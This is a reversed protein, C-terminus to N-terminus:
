FDTLSVSRRQERMQRQMIDAYSGPPAAVQMLEDPKKINEQKKVPKERRVLDALAAAVVRDGHSSGVDGPELEDAPNKFEVKGDKGVQYCKAESLVHRSRVVHRGDSMAVSWPEFITEKGRDGNHWGPRRSRKAGVTKADVHYRVNMYRLEDMLKRQFNTAYGGNNEWCVHPARFMITLAYVSEAFREPKENNCVYEAVQDGTRLDLVYAVSNNTISTGTGACIDIGIAYDGEPALGYADILCWLSLPGRESDVFRIMQEDRSIRGHHLPEITQMALADLEAQDFYMAGAEGANRDLEKAVLRKNGGLRRWHYDYYPSRIRGDLIFHYDQPFQYEKDIVVLQGEEATYLGARREPVDKWDLVVMKAPQLAPPQNRCQQLLNFFTGKPGDISSVFIRTNTVNSTSALVDEDDGPHLPYAYEDFLIATKRGGRTFNGSFAYGFITNNNWPNYFRCHRRRLRPKLFSPQYKYIFDLKWMLSDTDEGNDVADETRSGIAFHKNKFFAWQKYFIHLVTWTAGMERSKDFLADQKTRMCDETVDMANLQSSWPMFPRRADGELERPELLWCFAKIWFQTDRMCARRVIDALDHNRECQRILERRFLLNEEPETPV